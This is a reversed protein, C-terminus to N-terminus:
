HSGIDKGYFRFYLKITTHELSYALVENWIFAVSRNM